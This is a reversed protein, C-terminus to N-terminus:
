DDLNVKEGGDITLLAKVKEPATSNPMYRVSGDCIAVNCGGPHHSGIGPKKLGNIKFDIKDFELDKPEAWHVGSDAVEVIMITNSLGDTIESLKRSHPGDSITQKGVVIMYDTTCDGAPHSAKPCQFVKIETETIKRNNSSDWPENFRFAKVPFDGEIYPMLLVRWSYLPKGNKDAVYAPPFCKNAAAYNHMALAIQKINNTCQIRRAATKAAIVVKIAAIPLLVVTAIALIMLIVILKNSSRPPAVFGGGASPVTIPQGCKACPGTQGAVMDAVDTTTGCHPCIFQIPM